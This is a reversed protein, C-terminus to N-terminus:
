NNNNNIYEISFAFKKELKNRSLFIILYYAVLFSLSVLSSTLEDVFFLKIFVYLAVVVIIFPIFFALLVAQMGMSVTGYVWVEDGQKYLSSDVNYIDIIKEKSESASCHGKISCASCASTQVIRVKVSTNGTSEVIGRHKIINAM